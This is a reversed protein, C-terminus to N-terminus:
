FKHAGVKQQVGRTMYKYKLYWLKVLVTFWVTFCLKWLKTLFESSNCLYILHKNSFIFAIMLQSHFSCLKPNFDGAIQNKKIPKKILVTMQCWQFFNFGIISTSKGTHTIKILLKLNPPLCLLFGPSFSHTPIRPFRDKHSSTFCFIM